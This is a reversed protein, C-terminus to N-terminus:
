PAWQGEVIQQRAARPFLYCPQQVTGRATLSLHAQTTPTPTPRPTATTNAHLNPNAWTRNPFPPGSPGGAGRGPSAQVNSQPQLRAGSVTTCWFADFSDAWQAVPFKEDAVPNTTDFEKCRSAATGLTTGPLRSRGLLFAQLSTSAVSRFWM